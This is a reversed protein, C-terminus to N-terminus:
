ENNRIKELEKLTLPFDYSGIMNKLEERRKMKIYEEMAKTIAGKKTKEKSIKLVEKMLNEDIEILTRM